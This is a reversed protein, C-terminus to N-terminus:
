APVATTRTVQFDVLWDRSPLGGGGRGHRTSTGSVFFLCEEFLTPIEEVGGFSLGFGYQGVIVLPGEM